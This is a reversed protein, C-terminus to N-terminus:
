AQSPSPMIFRRDLALGATAQWSEPAVGSAGRALLWRGM